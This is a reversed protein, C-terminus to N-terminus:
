GINEGLKEQTLKRCVKLRTASSTQGFREAMDMLANAYKLKM